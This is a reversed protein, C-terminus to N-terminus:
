RAPNTHFTGAYAFDSVRAITHMDLGEEICAVCAVASKAGDKWADLSDYWAWALGTERIEKKCIACIPM